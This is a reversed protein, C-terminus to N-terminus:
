RVKEDGVRKKESDLSICLFGFAHECAHTDTRAIAARLSPRVQAVIRPLESAAELAGVGGGGRRHALSLLAHAAVAGAQARGAEAQAADEELVALAAAVLKARAEDGAKNSAEITSAQSADGHALASVRAAEQAAAAEGRQRLEELIGLVLFHAQKAAAKARLEDFVPPPASPDFAKAAASAGVLGGGGSGGGAAKAAGGGAGAAKPDKAAAAAPAATASSGAAFALAARLTVAGKAQLPRCRGVVRSCCADAEQTRGQAALCRGLAEGLFATLQADKCRVLRLAREALELTSM